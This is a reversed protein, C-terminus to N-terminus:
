RFRPYCTCIHIMSVVSSSHYPDFNALFIHFKDTCYCHLLRRVHGAKHRFSLHNKTYEESTYTTYHSSVYGLPLESLYSAIDQTPWCIRYTHCINNVEFYPRRGCRRAPGCSSRRGPGGACGRAPSVRRRGPGCVGSSAERFGEQATDPLVGQSTDHFTMLSRAGRDGGAKKRQAQRTHRAYTKRRNGAHNAPEKAKRFRFPPKSM